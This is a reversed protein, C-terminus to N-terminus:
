EKNKIEIFSWTENSINIKNHYTIIYNEKILNIIKDENNRLLRETMSFIMIAKGDFTDSLLEARNKKFLYNNNKLSFFSLSNYFFNSLNKKLFLDFSYIFTSEKFRSRINKTDSISQQFYIWKYKSIKNKIEDRFLGGTNSEDAAYHLLINEFYFKPSKYLFINEYEKYKNLQKILENKKHYYNQVESLRIKNFNILTTSFIVISLVLFYKKFKKIKNINQKNFLIGIIFFVYIFHNRLVFENDRYGDYTFNYEKFSYNLTFLFFFISFFQLIKISNIKSMFFDYINFILFLTIIVFLFPNRNFYFLIGKSLYSVSLNNANFQNEFLINFIAVPVRGLIPLNLLIFIVTIVVMFLFTKAIDRKEFLLHYIASVCITFVLAINPSKISAMLALFFSLKLINKTKIRNSDILKFYYTIIFIITPVLLSTPDLVDLSILFEQYSFLIILFFLFYIELNKKRFFNLYVCISIILYFINILHFILNFSSFNKVNSGVIKLIMSGIYYIPTGLHNWDYFSHPNLFFNKSNYYIFLFNSFYSETPRLNITLFYFKLSLLVVAIIIFYKQNSIKM